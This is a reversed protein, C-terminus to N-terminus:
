VCMSKTKYVKIAFKNINQKHAYKKKARKYEM